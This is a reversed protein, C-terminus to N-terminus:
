AVIVVARCCLSVWGWDVAVARVSATPGGICVLGWVCAFHARKEAVVVRLPNVAGCLRMSPLVKSRIRGGFATAQSLLAGPAAQCPFKGTSCAQLPCVCVRARLHQQRACSGMHCKGVSVSLMCVSSADVCISGHWPSVLGPAACVGIRGTM